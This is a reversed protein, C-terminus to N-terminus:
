PAASGASFAAFYGGIMSSIRRCIAASQGAGAHRAEDSLRSQAGVAGLVILTGAILRSAPALRRRRRRRHDHRPAAPRGAREGVTGRVILLGGSMGTCRAKARRASFTAPM